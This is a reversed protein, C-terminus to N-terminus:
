HHHHHEKPHPDREATQRFGNAAPVPDSQASLFALLSSVDDVGLNLNPMNVRNYKEFLAKATVDGEALVKEPEKLYRELWVQNRRQTVGALDPGIRDGGGVTHCSACRSEFLFKAKSINAPVAQAYDSTPVV